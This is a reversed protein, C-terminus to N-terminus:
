NQNISSLVFGSFFLGMAIIIHILWMVVIPWIESVKQDKVVSLKRYTMNYRIISSPIRM